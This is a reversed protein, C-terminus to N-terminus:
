QRLGIASSTAHIGMPVKFVRRCRATVSRSIGLATGSFLGAFDLVNLSNTLNTGDIQFSVPHKESKNLIVGASANLSWLPRPRLDSFNIRNLIDQPYGQAAANAETGGFDIPLGSDYTGGAALWLRPAVQYRFRARVANREEQSVPFM